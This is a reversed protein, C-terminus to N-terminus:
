QLPKLKSTVRGRRTGGKIRTIVTHFVGYDEGISKPSEKARLREWIKPIESDPIKINGGVSRGKKVKDEINELVTGWWLNDVHDNIPDSEVKHCACLKNDPNPIFHIAVLRSVIAERHVGNKGLHVRNHPSKKARRLSLIKGKLSRNDPTVRDLSRVRGYSSVQYFGIFDVGKVERIDKWVEM